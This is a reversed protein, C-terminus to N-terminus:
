QVCSHKDIEGGCVCVGFHIVFLMSMNLTDGYLGYVGVHRMCVLWVCRCVYMGVYMCAM